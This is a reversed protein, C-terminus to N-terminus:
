DTVFLDMFKMLYVTNNTAEYLFGKSKRKDEKLETLAGSLEMDGTKIRLTGDKKTMSYDMFYDRGGPINIYQAFKDGGGGSYIQQFFASYPVYKMVPQGYMNVLVASKVNTILGVRQDDSAFSSLRIGTVTISKELAKPVKKVEGDITYKSKFEDAEKVGEWETIAEALTTTQFDMPKLGEVENIRKAVDEFIGNDMKLNFRATVNMSTEGTAQNYNVVGVADITPEGFNMGLSIEGMGNMSCSETHLAIFNGPEARNILKEKSGIQYEKADVNYQLYGSATIVVPDDKSVLASLFTPYLAISDVVPSDRWVIGASIPKGDLDKMNEAVPIQINKPDIQATFSMWNRDFKACNHNIRTAGTFTIAPNSAKVAIGGYYDFHPSLKFDDEKEIKGSAVTQYSTDLKIDNMVVYTKLSDEDYYAYKASANYDRRAKIEVEAEEFKHYKTIYNAVITANKLVDIKAKKRITVKMSDPYIRADAIDIYEVESCHMTKEKVSFKAKPARFQLSDQKPHLSFFNPGKLDVGTNIAVDQDKQREMEISYDDMFWTFKDMTCMYQIVPFVMPSEGQNSNFEGKREKFSVHASVKDTKLAMADETVDEDTNKLSFSSTDADIDWRKYSFNDSILTAREFNMLGFGTMGKPQIIATGKLQAEGDFFSLSQKPMSAAKLMNSHPVYTIYAEDATVPPFEVGSAAARNEFKAVGVTSDPLFTLRNSVSTSHIFNITGEGQLGNHSLAIKNDYKAETGYFTYGGEPAKTIFGFSYDPMIKVQQRIVPFIGASTLEGDLRMKREVFDNLSDMEFPDVTYYFRTSDYVGRYIDKQNYFIKSKTTSNLIPYVAYADKTKLGSRNDTADIIVEGAIGHISSVMAIPKMGDERRLPHVRFVSQDTELVKIMYDDYHFQAANTNMELKGVNLWGAFNFDRNERVLLSNDDPFIVVNRNESIVVYDIAQMSLDMTTLDMSAFSTMLRRRENEVHYVSDVSKLYPDSEIQERTYGKIEKPRLDTEFVINDYDVKGAKAKVFTELKENITVTGAENDYAIFGMNSLKFLLPKAQEITMGLASAAKGVTMTPEDYKYSYRWLAGLPHEGLGLLQDYVKENFYNKSEFKAVRQEQSTGFEYTYDLKDADVVWVIKPVYIDLEHYSDQFPAEGISNASRALQIAKKELDYNFEVGPHYLSDGNGFYLVTKARPVRVKKESLLVQTSRSVIFPVNNRKVTISAPETTTGSGIFQAGQLEFGGVYDVNPKIEKIVLKREFSIFQPYVKDEERNIKFARDSLYGKIPKDFYTTTLTVTDIRITSSKLSANHGGFVAFTKGPDMGLKEWTIKGSEGEWKKLSPDYVGKAGIVVLSDIIKGKDSAKNSAVRCVLNGEEFHIFAKNDFDFKYKGGVYFWEFNSSVAISRRSFFGSSMEIFDSFKKVNRSELLKDASSHWANFSESSQKGQVLSTVSFVYNYIEPYVKFRKTELLNCTQVMRNFYEDSLEGSEIIFVPLEKKAFKQYEGPGYDSLAKQFEKVFKERNATYTQGFVIISTLLFFTSLMSNKWVNM